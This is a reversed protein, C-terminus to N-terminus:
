ASPSQAKPMEPRSNIAAITIIPTGAKVPPQIEGTTRNDFNREFVPQFQRLAHHMAFLRNQLASSCFKPLLWSMMTRIGGASPSGATLHQAALNQLHNVFGGISHPLSAYQTRRDSRPPLGQAVPAIANIAASSDIRTYTPKGKLPSQRCPNNNRQRVVNDNAPYKTTIGYRSQGSWQPM